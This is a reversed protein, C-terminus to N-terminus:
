DPDRQLWCVAAGPQECRRAEVNRPLLAATPKCNLGVIPLNSIRVSRVSRDCKGMHSLSHQRATCGALLDPSTEMLVVDPHCPHHSDSNIDNKSNAAFAPSADM